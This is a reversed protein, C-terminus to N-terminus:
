KQINLFADNSSESKWFKSKRLAFHHLVINVTSSYRNKSYEYELVSKQTSKSSNRNKLVLEFSETSTEFIQLVCTCYKIKVNEYSIHM